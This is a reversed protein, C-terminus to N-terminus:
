GHPAEGLLADFEASLAAIDVDDPTKRADLARLARTQAAQTMMGRRYNQWIATNQYETAVIIHAWHFLCPQRLVNIWFIVKLDGLPQCGHFFRPTVM